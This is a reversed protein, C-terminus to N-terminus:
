LLILVTVIISGIIAMLLHARALFLTFGSKSTNLTQTLIRVRVYLLFAFFCYGFLIIFLLMRIVNKLTFIDIIGM